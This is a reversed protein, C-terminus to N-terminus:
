IQVGNHGLGCGTGTPAGAVKAHIRFKHRGYKHSSPQQTKEAISSLHLLPGPLPLSGPTREQSASVSCPESALESYPRRTLLDPDDM